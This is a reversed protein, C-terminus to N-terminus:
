QAYVYVYIFKHMMQFIQEYKFPFISMKCIIPHNIQAVPCQQLFCREYKRSFFIFCIAEEYLLIVVECLTYYKGTVFQYMFSLTGGLWYFWIDSLDSFGETNHIYAWRISPPQGKM